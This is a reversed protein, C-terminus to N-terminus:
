WTRPGRMLVSLIALVAVVMALLSITRPKEKLAWLAWVLGLVALLVHCFRLHDLLDLFTQLGARGLPPYHTRMTMRPPSYPSVGVFFLYISTLSFLLSAFQVGLGTFQTAPRVTPDQSSM